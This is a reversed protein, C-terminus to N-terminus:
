CLARVAFYFLSPGLLCGLGTYFTATMAGYPVLKPDTAALGAAVGVNTGLLGGFIMASRPNTLGIRRAVLPTAIMTVIAKTLGAALSLAIVESRAGIATGTVPGVIYTMAGAGITTISEADRYGFGVAVCAGSVFSTSVGLLLSVVGLGGSRRLEAFHVGFATSVIAMDRLMTGGLLGLGAFVPVDALGNKGGTVAGGVFAMALGAMVAIATGHLRGHTLRRSIWASVWVTAGVCTLAGLLGHKAFLGNTDCAQRLFDALESM